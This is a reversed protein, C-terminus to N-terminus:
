LKYCSVAFIALPFIVWLSSAYISLITDGAITSFSSALVSIAYALDSDLVSIDKSLVNLIRGLPVREFFENLPAFILSSIMRRHIKRSCNMSGGLLISSRIIAMLGYCGALIGYGLLFLGNNSQGSHGTWESILVNSAMKILEWFIVSLLVGFIYLYGGNFKCYKRLVSISVEGRKRDEAVM